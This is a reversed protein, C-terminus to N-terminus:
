RRATARRQREARLAADARALLDELSDHARLEALGVSISADPGASLDANILSFREVATELSVGSLALVLEDGGFRVILDYPRICSRIAQM